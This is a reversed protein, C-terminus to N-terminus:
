EYKFAEEVAREVEGTDHGNDWTSNIVHLLNSVAERSVGADRFMRGCSWLRTYRYGEDPQDVLEAYALAAMGLLTGTSEIKLDTFELSQKERYEVTIPKGKVERLFTKKNGTKAHVRGPASLLRSAHYLGMDAWQGVGLELVWCKQSYPVFRGSMPEGMKLYIHYGKGGSRWLKYGYGEEHLRKLIVGLGEDGKDCDIVLDRAYVDFLGMGRSKGQSRIVNAAHSDFWYLSTYGSMGLNIHKKIEDLPLMLGRRKNPEESWEAYWTM